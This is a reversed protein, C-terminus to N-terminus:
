KRRPDPLRTDCAKPTRGPSDLITRSDAGHDLSHNATYLLAVIRYHDTPPPPATTYTTFSQHKMNM